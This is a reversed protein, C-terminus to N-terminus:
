AKEQGSEFARSLLELSRLPTEIESHGGSVVPERDGIERKARLEPQAGGAVSETPRNDLAPRTM